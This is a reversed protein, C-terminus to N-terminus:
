TCISVKEYMISINTRIVGFDWMQIKYKNANITLRLEFNM